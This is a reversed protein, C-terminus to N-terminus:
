NLPCGRNNDADLAAALVLMPDRSLLLALNVDSLVSAATRPYSVDPHSANLLAAVAARLLIEAAGQNGPGGGFALAALLTADGLSPYLTQVNPFVSRVTQGPSYGTPPWSDSHNKWYGPTCGQDGASEGVYCAPDSATVAPGSAPLGTATGLNLYPGAVATGTAVCTMSQGPLLVTMPCLVSAEHDDAVTVEFLAVDGTNVVVYSWVVESGVAVGPCPPGDADLGNVLKEIRIQPWQGFYHSPDQATVNPGMPPAGSATGVNAYQWAIATGTGTCTM